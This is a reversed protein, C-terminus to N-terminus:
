RDTIRTQLYGELHVRSRDDVVLTEIGYEAGRVWRVIGASVLVRSGTPLVVRMACVEGRQLPLNGSIRWGTPSLDSVTGRGERFGREYVLASSLSFRQHLRFRYAM